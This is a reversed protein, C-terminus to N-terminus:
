VTVQWALFAARQVSGEAAAALVLESVKGGHGCPLVVAENVRMEVLHSSRIGVTDGDGDGDGHNPLGYSQSLGLTYLARQMSTEADDGTPIEWGYEPRPDAVALVVEPEELAIERSHTTPLRVVGCIHRRQQDPASEEQAGHKPWDYRAGPLLAVLEVQLFSGCGTADNDDSSKPAGGTALMRQSYANSLTCVLEKAPAAFAASAAAAGEERRALAALLLTETQLSPPLVWVTVTISFARVLSPIGEMAAAGNGAAALWEEGSEPENFSWDSEDSAIGATGPLGSEGDYGGTDDPSQYEFDANFSISLRAAEGDHLLVAHPLWGPFLLLSGAVPPVCIDEVGVSGHGPAPNLLLTCSGAGVTGGEDVYYAGSVHSSGHTHASNSDGGENLNAWSAQLRVRVRADRRLAGGGHQTALVAAGFRAVNQALSSRLSALTAACGSSLGSSGALLAASADLLNTDSHWGGNNSRVVSSAEAAASRLALVCRRLEVIDVGGPVDLWLPTAHLALDRPPPLATVAASPAADIHSWAWRALLVEAPPPQHPWAAGRSSNLRRQPQLSPRLVLLVAVLTAGAAAHVGM